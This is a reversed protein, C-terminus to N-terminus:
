PSANAGSISRGELLPINPSFLRTERYIAANPPREDDLSVERPKLSIAMKQGWKLVSKSKLFHLPYSPFPYISFDIGQM